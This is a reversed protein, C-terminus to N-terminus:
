EYISKYDNVKYGESSSRNDQEYISKYDGIKYPISHLPFLPSEPNEKVSLIPASPTPIIVNEIADDYDGVSKLKEEVKRSILSGVVESNVASIHDENVIRFGDAEGAHLGFRICESQNRAHDHLDPQRDFDEAYVVQYPQVVRAGSFSNNRHLPNLEM